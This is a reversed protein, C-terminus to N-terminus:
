QTSNRPAGWCRARLHDYALNFLFTYPLYFLVLAIDLVFAQWLGIDLWWAALPIAILILGGEFGCAHVVRLWLTRRWGRHNELRDFAANYIMNWLLAIWAIAITLVGMRMFSKDMIWAAAPATIGIALAEFVFAHLFRETISKRTQTM